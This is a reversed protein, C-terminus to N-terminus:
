GHAANGTEPLPILVDPSSAVPAAPAATSQCQGGCCGCSPCVWEVTCKRVPVQKVVPHIVLRPV